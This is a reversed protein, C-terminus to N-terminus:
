GRVRSMRVSVLFWAVGAEILPPVVALWANDLATPVFFALVFRGAGLGALIGAIVVYLLVLTVFAAFDARRSQATANFALVIAADRLLFFFSAVYFARLDVTEGIPWGLTRANADELTAVIEPDLAIPSALFTFALTLLGSALIAWGWSPIRSSAAFVRGSSFARGIWRLTVTDKTDVFLMLYALSSAVAISVLIRLVLPDFLNGLEVGEIESLADRIAPNDLTDVFGAAYVMMFVLFAIWVLPSNTFQLEQRMLRHNGIIAWLAFIAISALVFSRVSVDFAYWTIDFDLADPWNGPWVSAVTLAAFVGLLQYLFVGFGPHGLQRRVALLSVLMSVAHAILGLFVYYGLEGLAKAPGSVAAAYLVIVALCIAGGYWVYITSGFLKGWVMSWPAIASMRQGDWTRDRIEGVVTRSTLWTGWLVVILWYFTRAVPPVSLQDEVFPVLYAAYFIAGLVIPMVILRGASLNLWLNRQFEPNM